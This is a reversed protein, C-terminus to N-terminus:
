LSVAMAIAGGIAGAIFGWKFAKLYGNRKEPAFVVTVEEDGSPVTADYVADEYGSGKVTIKIEDGEFSEVVIPAKGLIIDGDWIELGPPDTLVTLSGASAATVSFCLVVVTLVKM